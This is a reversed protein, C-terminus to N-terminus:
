GLEPLPDMELVVDDLEAYWRASSWRWDTALEVLGRRVPNDHLYAISALVVNPKVINRDYGGGQQWFRYEVRGTPWTVKLRQLLPSRLAHLLRIARRAVSLKIAKLVNSIDYEPLVPCLLVHVHEPMIVYAWLEFQWRERARLLAEVFWQRSRDKGLLPLRQHCCFTLEHAEGATNYRRRTKRFRIPHMSPVSYLM